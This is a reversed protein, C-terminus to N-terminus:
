VLGLDMELRGALINVVECVGQRKGLSSLSSVFPRSFSGVNMSQVEAGVLLILILSLVLVSECWGAAAVTVETGVSEAYLAGVKFILTRVKLCGIPEKLRM